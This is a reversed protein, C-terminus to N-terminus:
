RDEGAWQSFHARPYPFHCIFFNSFKKRLPTYTSTHYNVEVGVDKRMRHKGIAAAIKIISAKAKKIGRLLRARDLM